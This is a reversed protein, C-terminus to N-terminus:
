KRRILINAFDITLRTKLNELMMVCYSMNIKERIFLLTSKVKLGIFLTFLSVKTFFNSMLSKIRKLYLSAM